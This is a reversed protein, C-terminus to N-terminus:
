LLDKDKMLGIIDKILYDKGQTHLDEYNAVIYDQLLGSQKLKEYILEPSQDLERAVYDTCFLIFELEKESPIDLAKM